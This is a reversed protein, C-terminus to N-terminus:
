RTYRQGSNTKEEWLEDFLAGQKASWGETQILSELFEEEWATLDDRQALLEHAQKDENDPRKNM